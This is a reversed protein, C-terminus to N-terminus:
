QNLSTSSTHNTIKAFEAESVDRNKYEKLSHYLRMENLDFVLNDYYNWKWQYTSGTCDEVGNRYVYTKLDSVFSEGNSLTFVNDSLIFVTGILKSTIDGGLTQYLIVCRGDPLVVIPACHFRGSQAYDFTYTGIVKKLIKDKDYEEANEVSDQVDGKKTETPFQNNAIFIYVVLGIIILITIVTLYNKNIGNRKQSLPNEQQKLKHVENENPYGCNPCVTDTASMEYGCEKCAVKKDIPCGCNPCSTAKDSIEHGCESCKILAM